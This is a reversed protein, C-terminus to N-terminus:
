GADKLQFKVRISVRVKVPRDRQMAPKWRTKRIAEMAAEDCGAGLSKLIQTDVVRGKEDIVVQVIVVGEVGAKRAIEPYVLNRQIAEYGGIPEPAKDYAVFIPAEEEEEPPPPPPPPIETLDLETEEITEDEPIDESESPIPVAPRAPPPPRNIQETIPIDEAKFETIVTRQIRSKMEFRKFAQMTIIVIALALIVSL